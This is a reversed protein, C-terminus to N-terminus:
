HGYLLDKGSFDYVLGGSPATQMRRYGAQAEPECGQGMCEAKRGRSEGLADVV